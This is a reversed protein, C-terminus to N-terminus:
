RYTQQNQDASEEAKMSKRLQNYDTSDDFIASAAGAAKEAAEPDIDAIVTVIGKASFAAVIARGIGRAGGTVIAVRNGSKMKEM